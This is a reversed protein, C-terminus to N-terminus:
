DEGYYGYDEDTGWGISALASAHDGDMDDCVDFDPEDDEDSVAFQKAYDGMLVATDVDDLRAVSFGLPVDGAYTTCLRYKEHYAAEDFESVDFGNFANALAVENLATELLHCAHM